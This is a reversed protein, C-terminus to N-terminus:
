VDDVNRVKRKKKVKDGDDTIKTTSMTGPKRKHVAPTWGIGPWHCVITTYGDVLWQDGISLEGVVERHITSYSSVLESMPLTKRPLLPGHVLLLM